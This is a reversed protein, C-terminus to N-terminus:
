KANKLYAVLTQAAAEEDIGEATVIVEEDQSLGLSMMGMISKANIKKSDQVIYIRSEYRSAVQVVMAAPTAGDKQSLKVQVNKSIM